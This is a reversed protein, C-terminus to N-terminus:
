HFFFLHINFWICDSNVKSIFNGFVFGFIGIALLITFGLIALLNAFFESYVRVILGLFIYIDGAFSFVFFYCLFLYRLQRAAVEYDNLRRITVLCFTRIDKDILIVHHSRNVAFNVLDLLHHLRFLHFSLSCILYWSQGIASNFLISIAFITSISWLIGFFALEPIKYTWSNSLLLTFFIFAMFLPVFMMFYYVIFSISYVLFRFRKVNIKDLQLDNPKFSNRCVSWVTLIHFKGQAEFALAWERFTIMIIFAATAVILLIQHDKSRFLPDGLYFSVSDSPNFILVTFRVINILSLSWIILDMRNFQRYGYANFNASNSKNLGTRVVQFLITLRETRRVLRSVTSDSNPDLITFLYSFLTEVMKFFYRERLSSMTQKIEM